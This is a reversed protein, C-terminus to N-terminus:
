KMTQVTNPIYRPRIGAWTQTNSGALMHHPFRRTKLILHFLHVEKEATRRQKESGSADVSGLFSPALFRVVSCVMAWLSVLLGM